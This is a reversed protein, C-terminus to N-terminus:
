TGVTDLGPTSLAMAIKLPGGRALESLLEHSGLHCLVVVGSAFVHGGRTVVCRDQRDSCPWFNSGCPRTVWDGCAKRTPEGRGLLLWVLSVILPWCGECPVRSM